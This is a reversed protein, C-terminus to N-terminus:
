RAQQVPVILWRGPPLMPDEGLANYRRIAEPDAAYRAALDDLPESAGGIQLVVFAPVAAPDYVGLPIVLLQGIALPQSDLGNALRIVEASTGFREGLAFLSDGAEIRHILFSPEAGFATEFDPGPTPTAPPL